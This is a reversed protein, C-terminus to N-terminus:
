KGYGRESGPRKSSANFCCVRSRAPPNNATEVYDNSFIALYIARLCQLTNAKCGPSPPPLTVRSSRFKGVQNAVLMIQEMKHLHRLLEPSIEWQSLLDLLGQM